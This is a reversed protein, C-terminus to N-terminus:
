QGKLRLEAAKACELILTMARRTGQGGVVFPNPDGPRRMALKAAKQVKQDFIVHNSIFGDAEQTREVFRELSRQYALM